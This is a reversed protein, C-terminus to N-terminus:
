VEAMRDKLQGGELLSEWYSAEGLRVLYWAILVEAIESSGYWCVQSMAVAGMCCVVPSGYLIKNRVFTTRTFHAIVDAYHLRDPRKAEVPIPVGSRGSRLM